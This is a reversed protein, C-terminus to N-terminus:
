KEFWAPHSINLSELNCTPCLFSYFLSLHVGSYTLRIKKKQSFSIWYMNKSIYHERCLHRNGSNLWLIHRDTALSHLQAWVNLIMLERFTSSYLAHLGLLYGHCLLNVILSELGKWQNGELCCSLFFWVLLIYTV